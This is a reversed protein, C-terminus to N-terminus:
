NVLRKLLPIKKAVWTVVCGLAFIWLVYVIDFLMANMWNGIHDNMWFKIKTLIQVRELLMPHFLYVGMTLGGVMTIFNALGEKMKEQNVFAKFTLFMTIATFPIHDYYFSENVGYNDLSKAIDYTQGCEICIALISVIWMPILLKKKGKMNVNNHCFYGM